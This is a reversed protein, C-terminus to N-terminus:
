KLTFTVTIVALVPVPEGNMITPTYKWQKVAEVAAPVLLVHGSLSKVSTVNGEEDVVAELVVTGSVHAAVALRPYVPTVQRILKSPELVGIRVPVKPEKAPPPPPPPLPHVVPPTLALGEIGDWTGGGSSGLGPINGVMIGPDLSEAADAPIPIGRPIRGPPDFSAAVSVARGGGSARVPPSPPPPPPPPGPPEILITLLEENQLANFFVLPVVILIGILVIHVALSALFSAAYVIGDSNEQRISEFM